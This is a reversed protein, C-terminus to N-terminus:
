VKRSQTPPGQNGVTKKGWHDPKKCHNPQKRQEGHTIAGGLGTIRKTAGKPTRKRKLRMARFTTSRREPFMKSNLFKKGWAGEWHPKGLFVYVRAKPLNKQIKRRCFGGAGGIPFRAVFCEPRSEKGSRRGHIEGAYRTRGM